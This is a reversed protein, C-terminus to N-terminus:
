MSVQKEEIMCCGLYLNLHFVDRHILSSSYGHPDLEAARAYPLCECGHMLQSYVPSPIHRVTSTIYINHPFAVRTACLYICDVSANEGRCHDVDEEPGTLGLHICTFSRMCQIINFQTFLRRGKGASAIGIGLADRTGGEGHCHAETNRWEKRESM